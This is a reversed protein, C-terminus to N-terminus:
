AFAIGTSDGSILSRNTFGVRTEGSAVKTATSVTGDNELKSLIYASMTGTATFTRQTGNVITSM